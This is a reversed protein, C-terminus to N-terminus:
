DHNSDVNPLWKALQSLETSNEGQCANAELIMEFAEHLCVQVKGDSLKSNSLLNQAMTRKEEREANKFRFYVNSAFDVLALCEEEYKRRTTTFATMAVEIDLLEREWQEKLDKYIVHPVENKLKDVYLKQLNAKLEDRSQELRRLEDSRYSAEETENEVLAQRLLALVEPKIEMKSLKEAIADSIAEERTTKRQCGKAGSCAYYLHGKTSQPSISCGCIGCTFLGRYLFDKESAPKAKTQNRGSFIDQVRQFTAKSTLPEHCGEFEEGDWRVIGCYVPNNLIIHLASRKVMQGQRSRLGKLAAEHQLLELSINGEAYREFLWTVHHGLAPDVQIIRRGDKLGNVYGFPAHSPWLGLRAKASMGKKTEESLNDSYNRAMLVRIGHIFKQHSRSEHSIIEGEKVLHIEIDLEDITLYDRINRYLRDTKEVLLISAKGSKFLKVMEAFAPRGAVKATESEVYEELVTMGERMAYSRLLALQADLSYGEDSQEKTSVRAYILASKM